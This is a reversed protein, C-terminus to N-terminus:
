MERPWSRNGKRQNEAATLVQLNSEVHLGCVEPHVLPVIHDVHHKHGTEKTLRRAERYFAEIADSSAWSPTAQLKAARYRALIAAAKERNAAIYARGAARLQERNRERYEAKRAKTEPKANDAAVTAKRAEPRAALYKAQYARVADKRRNRYEAAWARRAVPDVHPM